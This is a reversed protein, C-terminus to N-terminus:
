SKSQHSERDSMPSSEHPAQDSVSLNRGNDKAQYLLHDARKLLAELSDDSDTVTAVGLSITFCITQEDISLQMGEVQLRLREALALAGTSDTDPCCLSFEEGGFRAVIDSGRGAAKCVNALAILAKDGAAHGYHDNIKKFKDVDLMIVSLPRQHRVAKAMETNGLEFFHRRNYLQTLPDTSALLALSINAEELKAQSEKLRIASRMRAALVPYIFPKTVYDHAGAEFTEVMDEDADNASVMIVPIQKLDPDSKLIALAAPGDMVPMMMDLLIIDPLHLRAQEICSHGDNATIVDHGDDELNFLLLTVNDPIDDVVLVKAM